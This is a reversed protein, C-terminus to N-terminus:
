NSKNSSVHMHLNYINYKGTIRNQMWNSWENEWMCVNNGIAFGNWNSQLTHTQTYHKM